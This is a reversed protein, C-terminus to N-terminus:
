TSPMFYSGAWHNSLFSPIPPPASTML